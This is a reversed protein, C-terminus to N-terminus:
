KELINFFFNSNKNIFSINKGSTQTKFEGRFAGVFTNELDMLNKECMKRTLGSIQVSIESDSKQYSGFGVNCGKYSLTNDDFLIIEFGKPVKISKNNIKMVSLEYTALVSKEKESSLESTNKACSTIVLLAFLCLTLKKLM